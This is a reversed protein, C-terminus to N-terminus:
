CEKDRDNNRCAYTQMLKSNECRNGCSDVGIIMTGGCYPNFPNNSQKKM